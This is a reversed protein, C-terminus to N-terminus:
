GSRRITAQWVNNPALAGVPELDVEPRPVFAPETASTAAAFVAAAAGALAGRGVHSEPVKSQRKDPTEFNRLDRNLRRYVAEFNLM